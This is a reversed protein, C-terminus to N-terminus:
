ALAATVAVRLLSLLRNASDVRILGDTLEQRFRVVVEHDRLSTVATQRPESALIADIADDRGGGRASSELEALLRDLTDGVDSM